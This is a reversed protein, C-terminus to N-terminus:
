LRRQIIQAVSKLQETTCVNESCSILVTARKAKEFFCLENLKHHKSTFADTAVNKIKQGGFSQSYLDNFRKSAANENGPKWVQVAFGLEDAKDTALRMANYRSDPNQGLLWAEQLTGSYGTQERLERINILKEISMGERTRPQRPAKPQPAADAAADDDSFDLGEAAPDPDSPAPEAANEKAATTDDPADADKKVPPRGRKSAGDPKQADPNDGDNKANDGKDADNEADAAKGRAKRHKPPKKADDSNNANDADSEGLDVTKSKSDTTPTSEDKEKKLMGTCHAGTYLASRVTKDM